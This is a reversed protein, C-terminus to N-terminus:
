FSNMMIELEKCLDFPLLYINMAYNPMAQAVTKLFIEKGAQSLMKSHWGQLRQRVKDRIYSFVVKKKRRIHSPLGLYARHDEITNVDLTGCIQSVISDHVNASFSTSSKTFNILQGFACGYTALIQNVVSAEAQNAGFFMFNDDAFFLHTVVSASRAVKVGHILGIREQSKILSSFGEACLIFLYPSLSNGQRLGKSPIILGVEKNEHLVSYQVTTVCLMILNVWRADFGLNIM